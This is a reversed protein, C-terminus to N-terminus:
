QSFDEAVIKKIQKEALVKAYPITIKDLSSILKESLKKSCMNKRCYRQWDMDFFLALADASQIVKVELSNGEEGAFRTRHKLVCELVKEKFESELDFRDLFKKSLDYGVVHHNEKDIHKGIDHLYAAVELVRSDVGVHEALLKSYKVTLMIHNNWYDVDSGGHDYKEYHFKSFNIVEKLFSEYEM